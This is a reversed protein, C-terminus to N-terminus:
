VDGPRGPSPGAPSSSTIWDAHRIRQVRHVAEARHLRHEHVDVRAPIRRCHFRSKKRFQPRAPRRRRRHRARPIVHLPSTRPGTAHFAGRRPAHEGPRAAPSRRSTSASGTRRSLCPNRRAVRGTVTVDHTLREAHVLHHETDGIVHVPRVRLGAPLTRRTTSPASAQVALPVHEFLASSGINPPRPLADLEIEHRRGRSGHLPGARSARCTGPPAPARQHRTRDARRARPQRGAPCPRPRAPWAAVRLAGPNSARCGWWAPSPCGAPGAAGAPSLM